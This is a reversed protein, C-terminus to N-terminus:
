VDYINVFTPAYTHISLGHYYYCMCSGITLQNFTTTETLGQHLRRVVGSRRGAAKTPKNMVKM